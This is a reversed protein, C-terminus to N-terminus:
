QSTGDAFVVVVQLQREVPLGLVTHAPDTLSRALRGDPVTLHVAVPPPLVVKALGEGDISLLESEYSALIAAEGTARATVTGDGDVGAVLGDGSSWTLGAQGTVDIRSGGDTAADDSLILRAVAQAQQGDAHFMNTVRVSVEATGETAAAPSPDIGQIQVTAPILVELATVAVPVGGAVTVSTAGLVAGDHGLARVGAPGNPGAASVVGGPSVTLLSPADTGFQVRASVDMAFFLDEGDSFVAEARATTEQIADLDTVYQLVPDRVEVELPLVPGLVHLPVSDELGGGSVQVWTVGTGAVTLVCGAELVIGSVTSVCTLGGGAGMFDMTGDSYLVRAGATSSAELGDLDSTDLLAPRALRAFLGRLSRHLVEVTGDSGTGGADWLLLPGAARIDALTVSTLEQVSGDLLAPGEDADELVHVRVVAVEVLPGSGGIGGPAVNIGNFSLSGLLNATTSANSVPPGLAADSGELVTVIQLIGPDFDLSIDYAGLVHGGTNVLIPVDFDHGAHVPGLPLRALVRG